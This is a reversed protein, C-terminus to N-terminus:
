YWHHSRWFAWARCPTGYRQKIYRAGVRIQVEPSRMYQAATYGDRSWERWSTQPIGHYRGNPNSVWYRWNSERQWMVSLCSFQAANWGYRKAIYAKAFRRSAVPAGARPLARAAAAEKAARRVAKLTRSDVEGTAQLGAARQVRLVARRTREDFAGTRRVRLLKQLALVDEGSDGVRLTRPASPDQVPATAAGATGEAAATASPDTAPAEAPATPVAAPDPTETSTPTTTADPAPSASDQAHAASPFAGTLAILLAALAVVLWARSAVALRGIAPPGPQLPALNPTM